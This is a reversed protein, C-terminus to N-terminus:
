ELRHNILADYETRNDKEAIAQLYSSGLNQETGRHYLEWWHSWGHQTNNDVAFVPARIKL